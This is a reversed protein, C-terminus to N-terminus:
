QYRIINIMALAVQNAVDDITVLLEAQEAILGARQVDVASRVKGFDYFMQTANLELVQRGREGSTFNGTGLGGSLQPYYNARAVDIQANKSSLNAMAESIKPHRQIAIKVADHLTMSHPLLSHTNKLGEEGIIPLITTNFEQSNLNSLHTFNVKNFDIDSKPTFFSKANETILDLRSFQQDAYVSCAICSGILLICSRYKRKFTKKM